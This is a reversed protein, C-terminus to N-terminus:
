RLAIRSWTSSPTATRMAQRSVRVRFRFAAAHAPQDQDLMGAQEIRRFPQILHAIQQDGAALDCAEALM